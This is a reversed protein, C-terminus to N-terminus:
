AAAQQRRQDVAAVLNQREKKWAKEIDASFGHIGWPSRSAVAALIEDVAKEKGTITITKGYRDYILAAYTKGTPIGNTRHQTVKKYLWIVDNWRTAELSSGTTQVLWNRTLHMNKNVTDHPQGMDYEIQQAIQDADGFARLGKMIGHRAPDASTRSTQFLGWVSILAVLIGAALGAYGQPKFDETTLMFPLFIGELRPYDKYIDKIVERQVDDPVPSLVGTVTRNEVVEGPMEVLLLRDDLELEIYSKEVKENTGEGKVYQYGTDTASDGKLTIYYKQLNNADEITLVEDKTMDFPGNFINNYHHRALFLGGAALVLGLLWVLMRNRNSRRIIEAISFGSDM